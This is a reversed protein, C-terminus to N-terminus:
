QGRICQERATLPPRRARGGAPVSHLGAFCTHHRGRGGLREVAGARRAGGGRLRARRVGRGRGRGRGGAVKKMANFQALQAKIADYKAQWEADSVGGGGVREGGAAAAAGLAAALADRARGLREMRAELEGRRKAAVAAM